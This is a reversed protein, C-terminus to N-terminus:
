EIGGITEMLKTVIHLSRELDRRLPKLADLVKMRSQDDFERWFKKNRTVKLKSMSFNVTVDLDRVTGLIKYLVKGKSVVPKRLMNQKKLQDNIANALFKM